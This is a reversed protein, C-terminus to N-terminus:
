QYQYRGERGFRDETVAEAVPERSVLQDNIYLRGEKMQIRDGPLGIVRKIYDQSPDRPLRFVVVDGRKPQSAFVRGSFLNPSFPISYRSYGYSFKSVSVFDGIELTPIMSGSPINFSQFALTKIVVAILLAQAVVKITEGLGGQAQKQPESDAAGLDLPESM